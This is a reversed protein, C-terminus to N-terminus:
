IMSTIVGTDKDVYYWGVTATCLAVGNDDRVWSYCHVTWKSGDFGCTEIYEPLSYGYKSILKNKAIEQAEAAGVNFSSDDLWAGNEGLYYGDVTIMEAMYGSNPWFYYWNGDIERWGTAWSNGETYWWGSNDKKWTASAGVPLATIITTSLLTMAIVKKIKNM